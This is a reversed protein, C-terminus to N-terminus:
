VDGVRKDDLGEVIGLHSNRKQEFDRATLPKTGMDPTLDQTNLYLLKCVGMKAQDLLWTVKPLFHRVRSFNGNYENALAINSKNDNYVPSPSFQEQRLEKLVGRLMVLTKVTEVTVQHEAETSSLPVNSSIKSKTFFMGTHVEQEVRPDQSQRVPVLDFSYSLKSRGDKMCGYAADAYGRLLLFVRGSMKDGPRLCLGLDKTGDIYGVIRMMAQWDKENCEHVYQAVRSVADIIDPRVDILQMLGGLLSQFRTIDVKPHDGMRLQEYNLAMPTRFPVRSREDQPYWKELIDFVQKKRTFIKGGDKTITIEMGLYASGDKETIDYKVRLHDSFSDLLDDSTASCHFDDVHVLVYIYSEASEWKYFLCQDYVSRVYGGRILHESMGENFGKPADILGYLYKLLKYVKGDVRVFVTRTIPESVFASSIDIVRTHLRLVVTMSLVLWMVSKSITPAFTSGVFPDLNGCVVLRAKYQGDRKIAYHWKTPLVVVGASAVEEVFTVNRHLAAMEKDRSAEWKEADPGMRTQKDRILPGARAAYAMIQSVGTVDLKGGCVGTEPHAIWDGMVMVRLAADDDREERHRDPPTYYDPRPRVRGSTRVIPADWGSDRNDDLEDQQNLVEVDDSVGGGNLVNDDGQLSAVDQDIRSGIDDGTDRPPALLGDGTGGVAAGWLRPLSDVFHDVYLEDEWDDQTRLLDGGATEGGKARSKMVIVGDPRQQPLWRAGEDMQIEEEQFDTIAQPNRREVLRSNQKRRKVIWGGTLINGMMVVNALENRTEGIKVKHGVRPVVVLEGFYHKGMLGVDYAINMMAVNPSTDMLISNPVTNRQQITMLFGYGWHDAPLNVQDCMSAAMCEKITRVTREVPNQNQHETLASIGQISNESLFRQVLQSNEVRGADYRIRLVTHRFRKAFLLLERIFQVLTGADYRKCLRGVVYLTSCCVAVM